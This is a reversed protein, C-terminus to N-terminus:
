SHVIRGCRQIKRPATRHLRGNTFQFEAACQFPKCKYKRYPPPKGGGDLVAAVKVAAGLPRGVSVGRQLPADRHARQSKQMGPPRKM